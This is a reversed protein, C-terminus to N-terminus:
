AKLSTRSEPRPPASKAVIADRALTAIWNAWADWSLTSQARDFAADSMLAYADPLRTLEAIVDAWNEPPTMPQMLRGAGQGGIMSGLGGTDTALVPTGHIMAEAVVMPTCDGRSPLILFHAESYLKTLRRAHYPRNKNLYGTYTIAPHDRHREPLRGVVTLRAEIGRVLLADLTAVAVDGGKRAWDLGVFLLNVPNLPTKKPCADPVQDFNVGFPAVAPSLWGLELDHPARRAMQESSYVIQAAHAAVRKEIADAELSVNWGYAERLFAPTADTIHLIPLDPRHTLLRNLLPSAVLGLVVDLGDLDLQNIRFDPGRRRLVRDLVSPARHPGLIRVRLDPHTVLARAAFFATGSFARRDLPNNPSLFGLEIQRNRSPIPTLVTM